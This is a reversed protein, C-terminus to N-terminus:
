TINIDFITTFTINCITKLAIDNAYWRKKKGKLETMKQEILQLHIPIKTIYHKYVPM